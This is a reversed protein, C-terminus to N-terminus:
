TIKFISVNWNTGDPICLAQENQSLTGLSAPADNKITIDEAGSAVNRLLFPTNKASEAPLTVDRAGNPDITQVQQDLDTLVLNGGLEGTVVPIGYPTGDMYGRGMIKWAAGTSVLKAREGRRLYVVAAAADDQITLTEDADATNGIELEIGNAEAPLTVVRDAGGPDLLQVPADTALLTLAGALTREQVGTRAIGRDESTGLFRRLIRAKVRTISAGAEVVQLCALDPDTVKVWLRNELADGGSNEDPALFEGVKFTASAVPVEVRGMVAIAIDDDQDDDSRSVSIGAFNRAFARQNLVESGLDAQQSATKAQDAAADYYCADGIRVETALAVPLYIMEVEAPDILLQEGAATM